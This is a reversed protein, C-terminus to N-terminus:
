RFLDDTLYWKGNQLKFVVPRPLATSIYTMVNSNAEYLPETDRAITLAKNLAQQKSNDFSLLAADVGGMSSIYTPSVYNSMFENYHGANLVNIMTQIQTKLSSQYKNYEPSTGTCNFIIVSSFVTIFLLSLKSSQKM